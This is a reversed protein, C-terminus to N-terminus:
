SMTYPGTRHYVPTGNVGIKNLERVEQWLRERWAILQAPRIRGRGDKAKAAHVAYAVIFAKPFRPVEKRGGPRRHTTLISGNRIAQSLMGRNAYGIIGVAETATILEGDPWAPNELAFWYSFQRYQNSRTEQLERILEAQRCKVKLFPLLASTANAAQRCTVQWSWLPRGNEKCSPACLALYGGFTQKLLEPIQPTVQKLGMHESYVPNGADKRVRMHYTSKKISFHGDSDMAGALYALTTSM